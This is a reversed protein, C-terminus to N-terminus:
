HGFRGLLWFLLYVVVTIACIIIGSAASVGAETGRGVFEFVWGTGILALGFALPYIVVAYEGLVGSLTKEGAYEPSVSEATMSM